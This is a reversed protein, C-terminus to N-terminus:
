QTVRFMFYAANDQREGNVVKGGLGVEDGDHLALPQDNEIAKNNVYTFNTQSLNQIYVKGDGMTLTAHRRSVYTKSSLFDKMEAERGITCFPSDIVFSYKSDIASLAFTPCSTEVDGPVPLIDSIDEHCKECKRAQPANHHGCECIRVLAGQAANATNDQQVPATDVTDDVPKISTLDTECQKCELFNPANHTGCVPCIKYKKLAM